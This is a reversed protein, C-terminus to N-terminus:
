GSAPTFIRILESTTLIRGYEVGAGHLADRVTDLATLYLCSGRDEAQCAEELSRVVVPIASDLMYLSEVVTAPNGVECVVLRETAALGHYQEVVSQYIAGTVVESEMHRLTARMNPDEEWLLCRTLAEYAGIYDNLQRHIQASVAARKLIFNNITELVIARNGPNFGTMGHNAMALAAIMELAGRYRDLHSTIDMVGAKRDNLSNLPTRTVAVYFQTPHFRIRGYELARFDMVFPLTVLHPEYMVRTYTATRHIGQEPFIHRALIFNFLEASQEKGFSVPEDIQYFLGGDSNSVDDWLRWSAHSAVIDPHQSMYDIEALLADPILRDDDALRVFFEGRAMRLVSIHNKMVGVNSKHRVYRFHPFQAGLERAVRETDDESNNDSVVIEVARGCDLTWRLHDLTAALLEQRNYTPICISLLIPPSSM